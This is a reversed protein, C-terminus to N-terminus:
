WQGMLSIFTEIEANYDALMKMKATNEQMKHACRKLRKKLGTRTQLFGMVENYKKVNLAYFYRKGTFTEGNREFQIPEERVVTIIKHKRAFEISPLHNEKRIDNYDNRTFSNDKFTQAISESANVAKIEIMSIM